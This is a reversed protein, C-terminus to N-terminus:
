NNASTESTSTRASRRLRSRGTVAPAPAHSVEACEAAEPPVEDDAVVPVNGGAYGDSEPDRVQEGVVADIRPPQERGADRQNEGFRQSTGDARPFLFFRASEISAT